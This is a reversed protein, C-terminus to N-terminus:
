FGQREEQFMIIKILDCWFNEKVKVNVQEGVFKKWSLMKNSWDNDDLM